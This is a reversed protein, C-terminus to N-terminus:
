TTEKNHHDLVETTKTSMVDQIQDFSWVSRKYDWGVDLAKFKPFEPRREPDSLHSHGSLNWSPNGHRWNNKNWIRFAFHNMVIYQKGIMIEQHNGHFVVNGMRLPYVEVDDRGFQSKVENKFLRYPSSEHNGFLYHINKCNIKSWWGMVKEDTANLFGDGLNWLIADEPVVRNIEDIQHEVCEEASDYGRMMWIPEPWNPDHFTHLDSVWYHKHRDEWKYKLIKYM